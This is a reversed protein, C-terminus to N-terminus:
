HVVNLKRQSILTQFRMDTDGGRPRAVIAIVVKSQSTAPSSWASNANNFILGNVTVNPSTLPTFASFGAQSDNTSIRERISWNTSDFSFEQCLGEHNLFRITNGGASPSYNHNRADVCNGNTAKRAMRLTRGMYELVFSLESFMTQEIMIQRQLSIGRIFVNVVGAVIIIFIAVAMLLETLTFGRKRKDGTM